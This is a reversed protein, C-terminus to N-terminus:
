LRFPYPKPNFLFLLLMVFVNTPPVFFHHGFILLKIGCVNIAFYFTASSPHTLINKGLLLM